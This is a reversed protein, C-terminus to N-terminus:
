LPQIQIYDLPNVANSRKANWGGKHIEFHLHQGTSRGTSGMMAIKQGQVVREGDKVLRSGARFHAMLTVYYAGNIGHELIITEGGAEHFYSRLVKGDAPALVPVDGSAAIDVGNHMRGNRIGFPSSLRGRAPTIFPSNISDDSATGSLLEKIASVFSEAQVLLEKLKDERSM